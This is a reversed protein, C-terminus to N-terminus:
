LIIWTFQWAISHTYTKCSDIISSGTQGKNAYSLHLQWHKDLGRTHSFITSSVINKQILATNPKPGDRKTTTKTGHHGYYRRLANVAYLDVLFKKANVKFTKVTSLVQKFLLKSDTNWPVWKLNIDTFMMERGSKKFWNKLDIISASPAGFITFGIKQSVFANLRSAWAM